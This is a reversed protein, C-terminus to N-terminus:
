PTATAEGTPLRGRVVTGHGVASDVTLVGGLAAIRDAMNTLGSGQPTSQPDFGRGDDAVAFSLFRGEAALRVVVSSALAYKAVNQFAELCCFYVAAELEQPYRGIGDAEIRIAVQAKDAQSELAAVLGADALLPPYIGRALDRLNALVEAMAAQLEDLMKAAKEPDKRILDAALRQRVALAVLHHQAGDHINRELRRAAADQAAVIRQRSARLEAAQASLEDLRAQLEATLRVNQLALGAESALDALLREQAPTLVEGAPKAVWIDGVPEGHHVVTLTRDFPRGATEGPWLVSRIEGDALFVRVQSRVAGVGRAAAEAMRPLIDEISLAAAMRESFDALVEYPTFREGYVLRNALRQLREKAPQFAVAVVTAALISLGINNRRGVATGIGVVIAVYVAGIFAILAGFLITKSIVLDIDWLRYRLIGIFLAIPILAFLAPFVQIVTNEYGTLRHALEDPSRAAWVSLLLFLLGAGFAPMLAWRLLQAQQREELTEARRYRYTQAAVGVIPILLGFYVVFHSAFSTSGRYVLIAAGLTVGIAILLYLAHQPRKSWRPVLEGEPFLVVAYMYAVGSVFHFGVHLIKVVEGGFVNTFSHSPLNFAAATGIMGLALFRAVRDMPRFRILVLALALNLISFLYYLVAPGKGAYEGSSAAVSRRALESMWNTGRGWARLLDLVSPSVRALVPGLGILLWFVVAATYLIFLALFALDAGTRRSRTVGPATAHVAETVM